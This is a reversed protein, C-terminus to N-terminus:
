QLLISAIGLQGKGSPVHCPLSTRNIDIHRLTVNLDSCHRKLMVHGGHRSPEKDPIIFNILLM